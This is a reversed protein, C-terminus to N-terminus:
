FLKHMIDLNMHHLISHFHDFFAHCAKLSNLEKPLLFDSLMLHLYIHEFVSDDTFNHKKSPTRLVLTTLKGRIPYNKAHQYTAQEVIQM